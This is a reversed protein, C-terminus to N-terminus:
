RALARVRAALAASSLWHDGILRDAVTGGRSTLEVMPCIDVGYLDGIAGDKDYAVPITWRHARVAAATPGLGSRVAVAAFQIGSGRFEASVAQLADVQRECDTSGTVFLAVVLPTRGCVNLGRPNPHLPDCRPTTNADLNLGSTALPAVFFHIRKGPAIGATGIGHTVIFSVSIVVVLLLGFGGIM